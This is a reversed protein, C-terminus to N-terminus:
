SELGPGTIVELVVKVADEIFLLGRERIRNREKEAERETEEVEADAERIHEMHIEEAERRAREDSVAIRSSAEFRGDSILRDSQELAEDILDEAQEEARRVKRISEVAM